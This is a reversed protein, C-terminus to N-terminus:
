GSTNGKKIGCGSLVNELQAKKERTLEVLPLRLRGGCVGLYEMAHKVPMPNAEIFLGDFLPQYKDHIERAKRFDGDAAAKYMQVMEAPIVSSGPSIMEVPVGAPTPIPNLGRCYKLGPSLTSCPISM